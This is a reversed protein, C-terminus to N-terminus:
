LSYPQWWRDKSFHTRSVAVHFWLFSLSFPQLIFGFTMLSLSLSPWSWSSVFIIIFCKGSSFSFLDPIELNTFSTGPVFGSFVRMNKGVLAPLFWIIFWRVYEANLDETVYAAWWIKLSGMFPSIKILGVESTFLVCDCADTLDPALGAHRSELDADLIIGTEAGM